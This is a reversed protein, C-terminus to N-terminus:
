CYIDYKRRKQGDPCCFFSVVKATDKSTKEIM